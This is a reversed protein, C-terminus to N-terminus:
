GKMKKKSKKQIEAIGESIKEQEKMRCSMVEWM